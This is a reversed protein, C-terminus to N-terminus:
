LLWHMKYNTNGSELAPYLSPNVTFIPRPPTPCESRTWAQQGVHKGCPLLPSDGNGDGSHTNKKATAIKVGESGGEAAPTPTSMLVGLASPCTLKGLWTGLWSHTASQLPLPLCAPSVAARKNGHNLSPWRVQKMALCRPSAHSSTQAWGRRPNSVDLGRRRTPLSYGM